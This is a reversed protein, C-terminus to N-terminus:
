LEIKDWIKWKPHLSKVREVTDYSLNRGTKLDWKLFYLTNEYEYIDARMTKSNNMGSYILKGYRIVIDYIPSDFIEDM